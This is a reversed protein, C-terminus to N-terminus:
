YKYIITVGNTNGVTTYYIGKLVVDHFEYYGNTTLGINAIQNNTTWTSNYIKLVGGAPSTSAVVVASLTQVITNTSTVSRLLATDNTATYSSYAVPGGAYALTSCALVSLITILKKM